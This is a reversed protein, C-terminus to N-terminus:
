GPPLPFARDLPDEIGTVGLYGSRECDETDSTLYPVREVGCHRLLSEYWFRYGPDARKTGDVDRIRAELRDALAAAGVPATDGDQFFDWWAGNSYRFVTAQATGYFGHVQLSCRWHGTAHFVPRIRVSEHGRGHLIRVAALLTVEPRAGATKSPREAERALDASETDTDTDTDAAVATDAAATDAATDVAGGAPTTARAGGDHESPGVAAEALAALDAATLAPWGHVLGKWEGPIADAGEIAGILAGAIAAVTDTDHGGRVARELVDVLGTGHTIASWAGQLAAGAWGNKPFDAPQRAEAEDILGGWYERRHPPLAALGARLDREGTLIATRIALCWLVCADGALADAHTLDGVLRAAAALGPEDELHALVVPGTRMLSGNGASHPHTAAFTRSATLLADATPEAAAACVARTQNGVDPAHAAWAIWAAAVEDLAAGALREGRAVVRLVPIAMSTDDTWEGPAWGLGGGGIMAVSAGDALPPGFEYGAGLADGCASALVSGVARDRQEKTLRVPM